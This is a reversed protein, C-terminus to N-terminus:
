ARPEFRVLLGQGGGAGILNFLPAGSVPVTGAGAHVEVLLGDLRLVRQAPHGAMVGGGAAASRLPAPVRRVLLSLSGRHVRPYFDFPLIQSGAPIVLLARGLRRVQALVAQWRAPDATTDILLDSERAQQRGGAEQGRVRRGRGARQDAGGAGRANRGGSGGRNGGAREAASLTEPSRGTKVTLLQSVLRAALGNGSVLVQEGPGANVDDLAAVVSELVPLGALSEDTTGAGDPVESVCGAAVVTLDALPGVGVVRAGPKLADRGTSHAVREISGVFAADPVRPYTGTLLPEPDVVAAAVRVMVEGARLEPAAEQRAVLAPSATDGRVCAVVRRSVV